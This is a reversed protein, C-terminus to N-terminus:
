AADGRHAPSALFAERTCFSLLATKDPLDVPGHTEFGAWANLAHIRTNEIDPEVVVRTVSPDAFLWSMVTAFVARTFGAVPRDTPAVLVHMGVDGPCVAYATGVADHAPDYREVLFVPEGGDLGLFADHSPHEAIARYEERVAELDHDGMQWFRSKPHSVWRHLLGADGEPVVPRLTFTRM